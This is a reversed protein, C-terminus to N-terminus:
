PTRSPVVPLNGNWFAGSNLNRTRSANPAIRCLPHVSPEPDGGRCGESQRESDSPQWTAPSMGDVALSLLSGLVPHDIARALDEIALLGNREAESKLAELPKLLAPLPASAFPVARIEKPNLAM